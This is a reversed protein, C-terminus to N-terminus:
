YKENLLSWGYIIDCQPLVTRKSLDHKIFHIRNNKFNNKDSSKSVCVIELNLESLYKTLFSGVYGNSGTILIKM